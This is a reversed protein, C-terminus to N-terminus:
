SSKGLVQDEAGSKGSAPCKEQEEWRKRAAREEKDDEELQNLVNEWFEDKSLEARINDVLEAYESPLPRRESGPYSMYIAVQFAAEHGSKCTVSRISQM